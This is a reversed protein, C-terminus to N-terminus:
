HVMPWRRVTTDFSGSILQNQMEDYYLSSVTGTHGAFQTVLRSSTLDWIRIVNDSEGSALIDNGCFCLSFTKSDFEPLIKALQGNQTNWVSISKADTGAAVWQSDPSFALARVRRGDGRIDCVVSGVDSRWVRIQGNRGGAALYMGDPSFVMATMSQSPAQVQYLLKYTSADFCSIVSQYGCIAFKTGDPSYALSRAGQIKKIGVDQLRQQKVNWIRVEGNQAVAVIKEGAPCFAAGRIWDRHSAIEDVLKGSQANWFRLVHDDGATVLFRGCNSLRVDSLVPREDVKKQELKIVMVADDRVPEWALITSSFLAAIILAFFARTKRM